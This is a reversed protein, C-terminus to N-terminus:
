LKNWQVFVFSSFNCVSVGLFNLRSFQEVFEMAMDLRTYDFENLEYGHQSARLALAIAWVADYTQPAYQSYIATIGFQSRLENAFMENTKIIETIWALIWRIGGM